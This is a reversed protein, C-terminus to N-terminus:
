LLTTAYFLLSLSTKLGRYPWGLDGDTVRAVESLSEKINFVFGSQSEGFSFGMMTPFYGSLCEGSSHLLLM